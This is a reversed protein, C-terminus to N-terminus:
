FQSVDGKGERLVEPVPGTLDIVSTIELVCTGGGIVVDVQNGFEEYVQEGIQRYKEATEPLLSVNMLPGNLETLLALLIPHDPVRLGITKRKAQVLRKPVERTATLVFTYPGPTYSKLLRFAPNDVRAYTAIESLDRCLLTFNHTRDLHRIRRIKEVAQKDGLQCGIGYGSDTPYIVVAGERILGAAQRILREQPHTPHIDIFRAMNKSLM